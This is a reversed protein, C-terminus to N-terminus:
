TRWTAGSGLTLAGIDEHHHTHLGAPLPVEPVPEQSWSNLRARLQALRGGCDASIRGNSVYVLHMMLENDANMAAKCLLGMTDLLLRGGVSPRWGATHQAIVGTLTFCRCTHWATSTRNDISGSSMKRRAHDPDVSTLVGVAIRRGKAAM